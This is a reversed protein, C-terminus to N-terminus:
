RRRGENGKIRWKEIVKRAHGPNLFLPENLEGTADRALCIWAGWTVGIGVSFWSGACMVVPASLPCSGQRFRSEWVSDARWTGFYLQLTKRRDVRIAPVTAGGSSPIDGWRGLGHRCCGRSDLLYSNKSQNLIHSTSSKPHLSDDLDNGLNVTSIFENLVMM